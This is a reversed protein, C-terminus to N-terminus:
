RYPNSAISKSTHSSSRSVSPHVAATTSMSVATTSRTPLDVCSEWDEEVTAYQQQHPHYYHFPQSRIFRQSSPSTVLIKPRESIPIRDENALIESEPLVPKMNFEQSGDLIRQHDEEM